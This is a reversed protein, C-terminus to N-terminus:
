LTGKYVLPLNQDVASVLIKVNYTEHIKAQSISLPKKKHPWRLRCEFQKMESESIINLLTIKCQIHETHFLPQGLIM